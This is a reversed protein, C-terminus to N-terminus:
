SIMIEKSRQINKGSTGITTERSYNLYPYRNSRGASYQLCRYFDIM